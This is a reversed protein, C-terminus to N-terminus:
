AALKRLNADFWLQYADRRQGLDFEVHIAEPSQSRVTFPLKPEFGQITMIGTEGIQLEPV